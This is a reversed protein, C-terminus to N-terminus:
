IFASPLQPTDPLKSFTKGKLLSYKAHPSHCYTSSNSMYTHQIHWSTDIQECDHLAVPSNSNWTGYPIAMM